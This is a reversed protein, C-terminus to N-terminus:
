AAPAQAPVEARKRAKHRRLRASECQRCARCHGDPMSENASFRSLPLPQKCKGSCVKTRPTGALELIVDALNAGTVAVPKGGRLYTGSFREGDDDRSLSLHLTGVALARLLARWANREVLPDQM